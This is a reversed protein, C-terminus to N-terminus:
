KIYFGIEMLSRFYDDNYKETSFVILRDEEGDPILRKDFNEGRIEVFTPISSTITLLAVTLPFIYHKRKVFENLSYIGLSMTIFYIPFFVYFSAPERILGKPQPIVM